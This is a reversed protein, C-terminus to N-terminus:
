KEVSNKNWKKKKERCYRLNEIFQEILVYTNIFYVFFYINNAILLSLWAKQRVVYRNNWHIQYFILIQSTIIKLDLLSNKNENYLKISFLNWDITYECNNHIAVQWRNPLKNIAGLYFEKPDFILFTKAFTKAQDDPSLKKDNLVIKYRFFFIFIM